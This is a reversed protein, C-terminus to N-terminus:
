YLAEAAVKFAATFNCGFFHFVKYIEGDPPAGLVFSWTNEIFTPM